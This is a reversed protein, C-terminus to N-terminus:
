SYRKRQLRWIRQTPSPRQARVGINTNNNRIDSANCNGFERRLPPGSHGGTPPKTSAIYISAMRIVSARHIGRVRASTAPQCQCQLQTHDCKRRGARGSLMGGRPASIPKNIVTSQLKGIAFRVQYLWEYPCAATGERPHRKTSAIYISTMRIVSARHIGRVRASTAPPCQCQLKTHDCKRRGARGSLM